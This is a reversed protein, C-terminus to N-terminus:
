KDGHRPKQAAFQWQSDHQHERACALLAAEKDTPKKSANKDGSSVDSM